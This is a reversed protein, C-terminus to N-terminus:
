KFSDHAAYDDNRMDKENHKSLQPALSVVIALIILLHDLAHDVTSTHIANIESWALYTMSMSQKNPQRPMDTHRTNGPMVLSIALSTPRM